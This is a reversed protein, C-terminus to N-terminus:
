RPLLKIALHFLACSAVGLIIGTPSRNVASGYAGMVLIIADIVLAAKGDLLSILTASLNTIMPIEVANAIASNATVILLIVAFSFMLSKIITIQPRM